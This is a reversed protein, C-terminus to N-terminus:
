LPSDPPPAPPPGGNGAGPTRSQSLNAFKTLHGLFALRVTAVQGNRHKAIILEAIGKDPSQDDYIEDRYIFGVIDADQEISGSERLDSLMPRKDVRSEPQRSLQSLAIVPVGLDKALMKLGRSIEAVEQQRNDVRRHSQMLQLYDIIVLDLGSKQKLRRCKAAIELMSISPTDDIYMPAESLRGLADSLRRWDRDDFRGTKIRDSAIGAEASLMRNVIEIKSMELSFVITPKKLSVTVYQALNLAFSSNHVVLDGAVFNHLVPVTVDYVRETGASVVEGVRDWVVDLRPPAALATGGSVSGHHDRPEPLTPVTAAIRDDPQLEDLQRWGYPTLFPHNATGVVTRGAMTRVRFVDRVGNDHFESPAVPVLQNATDDFALLEIREGAQGRRVVERLPLTSGGALRVPADGTLCKGMAPRAAIIILNEDQLGATLRDLDDFGTPIGTVESNDQSLKELRKFAPVLLESLSAYDNSAGIDAVRLVENEARGVTSLPDETDEYGMRVVNTGAEILRRLLAKERVVNAYYEANASTPTAAVLDTVAAAGGIEDLRHRDRVWELVSITDVATGAAILSEIAEFVVTHASRYFDNARLLETVTSAAHQSLMASGLVSVEAELSHPPVRDATSRSGGRRGGRAPGDYRDDSPPPAPDHGGQDMPPELDALDIDAGRQGDV